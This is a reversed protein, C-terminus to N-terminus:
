RILRIKGIVPLEKENGNVVNIIGVVALVPFFFAVCGVIRVIFYLRWSVLLVTVMLFQYAIGYVIELVILTMGQGVHYRVFESKKEMFFPVAVLIGLYALAAMLKNDRNNQRELGVSKQMIKIGERWYVM